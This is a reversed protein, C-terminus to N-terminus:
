YANCKRTTSEDIVVSELLNVINNGATGCGYVNEFKTEKAELSHAIAKEIAVKNVGVDLTNLNRDRKAQREGINVVMTGFSAAEIIGSSSNGVLVKSVDLLTLFYERPLHTLLTIYTKGESFKEIEARILHGGADSNPMLIVIRTSDPLSNLVTKVQKGAEEADQVVPHFLVTIISLLSDIKIYDFLSEQSVLPANLIDDLGPAGSVFVHDELEGMKVLRQRSTETSTFHFHSLKSIAHRISEDITGSLEGGHIHAVPLNQHLAAISAALMEGRDGLVLILDPKLRSFLESFGMLQSSLASSMGLRSGDESDSNVRYCDYGTNEVEKVTCGFNSHLHMGTVALSLKLQKSEDIQKLCSRMLGFDARTGTIYCIHRM